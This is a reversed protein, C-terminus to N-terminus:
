IMKLIRAPVGGIVCRDPFQGKVVAGAAVVCGSGIVAGDLVTVKAGIWCNSGIVIGEHTVGQHRILVEPDSFVHNEPHVSFNAGVITDDGIIVGGAGGIHAFDGIGVDSGIKIGDGIQSLSGTVKLVSFRGITSRDGIIVGEFGLADILCYDAITVGKGLSLSSKAQLSVGKGLWVRCRLRLLGRILSFAYRLCLDFLYGDTVTPDIKVERGKLLRAVREVILKIM